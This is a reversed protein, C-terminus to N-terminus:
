INIKVRSDTYSATNVDMTQSSSFTFSPGYYAFRGQSSGGAAAGSNSGSAASGANIYINITASGTVNGQTSCVIIISGGAGGSTGGKYSGTRSANSGQSYISTTATRTYNNAFLFIVGGGEGANQVGSVDHRGGSSGGAGMTARTLLDTTGYSLGAAGGSGNSGSSGGASGNNRHAAGGGGGGNASGAVGSQGGGGAGGSQGTTGSNYSGTFGEGRGGHPFNGIQSPDNHYAGRFGKGTATIAGGNFNITNAAIAIIGGYTGNYASCTLSGGSNLNFTDYQPVRVVTATGLTYTNSLSEKLTITTGSASDIGIYEWNGTTTSTGEQQVILIRDNSSLGTADNVSITTDGATASASLYRETNLTATTSLTYDGDTQTTINATSAWNGIQKLTAADNVGYVGSLHEKTGQSATATPMSKRGIRSWISRKGM